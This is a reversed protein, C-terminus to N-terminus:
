ARSLITGPHLLSAMATGSPAARKCKNPVSFPSAQCGREALEQPGQRGGGSGQPYKLAREAAPTRSSPRSPTAPLPAAPKHPEPARTSISTVHDWEQGHTLVLSSAPFWICCSLLVECGGQTGSLVQPLQQQKCIFLSFLTNRGPFASRSWDQTQVTVM